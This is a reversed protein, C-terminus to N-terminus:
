KLLQVNSLTSTKLRQLCEQSAGADAKCDRVDNVFLSGVKDCAVGELDFQKVSKKQSKLPALDLMFQRGIVGDPQFLAMDLKFSQYAQDSPNTVVMFFRCGKEFAEVKNLELGITAGAPAAPAAVPAPTADEAAAIQALGALAAFM